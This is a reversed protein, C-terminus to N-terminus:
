ATRFTTSRPPLSLVILIILVLIASSPEPIVVRWAEQQGDPNQGFGVIVTGDASISSATQLRWGSLDLGYEVSLVDALLASGIGSRWIYAEAGTGYNGDGVITMGDGSVGYASDYGQGLPEIGGFETWRFAAFDTGAGRSAGVVVSGDASVGYAYSEEDGGGDLYGLSVMGQEATWRFAETGRASTGAGVVVFGDDSIATALSLAAGGPLDGLSMAGGQETWKYASLTSTGGYGVIIQGDASVGTSYSFGSGSFLRQIGGVESWRIASQINGAITGFGVVVAGGASVDLAASSSNGGPVDGILRHGADETWIFGELGSAGQGYGVIASGDPSVNIAELTRGGSPLFGLGMFSPMPFAIAAQAVAMTSVFCLALRGITVREHSM